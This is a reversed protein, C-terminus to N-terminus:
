FLAATGSAGVAAPDGTVLRSPEARLTLTHAAHDSLRSQRTEHLYDCDGILGRM